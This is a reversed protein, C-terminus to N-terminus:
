VSSVVTAHRAVERLWPKWPGIGTERAVTRVADRIADPRSHAYVRLEREAIDFRPEVRHAAIRITWEKVSRSFSKM